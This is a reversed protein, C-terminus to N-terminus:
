STRRRRAALGLLGGGLLLMTSPEPVPEIEAVRVTIDGSGPVLPLFLDEFEISYTHLGVVEAAMADLGPLPSFGPIAPNLSSDSYLVYAGGLFGVGTNSLYFGFTGSVPVVSNNGALIVGGGFIPTLSLDSPNYIGFELFGAADIAGSVSVVELSITPGSATWAADLGDVIPVAFAPSTWPALIAITLVRWVHKM